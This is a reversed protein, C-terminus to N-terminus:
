RIVQGFITEGFGWWAPTPQWDSLSEPELIVQSPEVGGRAVGIGYLAAQALAEDADDVSRSLLIMRPCYVAFRSAAEMGVRWDRTPVIALLPTVAPILQRIVTDECRRVVGAPLRDLLRRESQRLERLPVPLGAPLEMLVDLVGLDVVAGVGCHERRSWESEDRRYAMWVRTGLVRVRSVRVQENAAYPTAGSFGVLTAAQTM